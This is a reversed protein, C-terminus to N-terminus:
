RSSCLIAAYWNRMLLIIESGSSLSCCYLSHCCMNCMVHLLSIGRARSVWNLSLICRFMDEGLDGVRVVELRPVFHAVKMHEDDCTLFIVLMKLCVLMLIAKLHLLVNNFSELGALLVIRGGM